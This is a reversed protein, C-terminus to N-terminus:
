AVETPIAQAAAVTCDAAEMGGGQSATCPVMRPRAGVTSCSQAPRVPVGLWLNEDVSDAASVTLPTTRNAQGPCNLFGEVDCRHYRREGSPTRFCPLVGTTAWRAVTAPHVGLAQAAEARTLVEPGVVRRAM